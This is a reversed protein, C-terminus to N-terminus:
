ATFPPTSMVSCLALWVSLSLSHGRGQFANFAIVDLVSLETYTRFFSVSIFAGYKM